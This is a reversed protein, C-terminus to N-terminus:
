LSGVSLSYSVSEKPIGSSSLSVPPPIPFVVDVIIVPDEPIPFVVSLVCSRVSAACFPSFAVIIRKSSCGSVRSWLVFCVLIGNFCIISCFLIVSFGISGCSFWSRVASMNACVIFFSMFSFLVWFIMISPILPYWCM